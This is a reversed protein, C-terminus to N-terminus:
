LFPLPRSEVSYSFDVGPRLNVFNRELLTSQFQETQKLDEDAVNMNINVNM